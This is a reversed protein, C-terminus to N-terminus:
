PMLSTKAALYTMAHRHYLSRLKKHKQVFAMLEIERDLFQSHLNDSEGDTKNMEEQLRHLLSASSYCKLLEEKKKELDNLKELAAALETTRIISCQNRLEVIQPEKDLNSRALQLMEKQIEDRVNNEAKVQDLALLFQNYAEKDTLLMRLEDVSKYKLSSIIGAAEAPSVHSPSQPREFPRQLNYSNSANNGATLPQSYTSSNGVFSPYGTQSPADQPRSQPEQDQSGWFRFMSFHLLRNCDLNPCLLPILIELYSLFQFGLGKVVCFMVKQLQIIVTM